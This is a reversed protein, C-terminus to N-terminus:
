SARRRRKAFGLVGALGTGLLAYTSPEPVVSNTDPRAIFLNVNDSNLNATLLGDNQAYSEDGGKAYFDGWVPTRDSLFSYRVGADGMGAPSDFKVGFFTSGIMPNSSFGSTTPGYDGFQAAVATGNVTPAIVCTLSQRCSESLGLILHSIAPTRQGSFGSLMYDYRLLGNDTTTVSWDITFSSRYLGGVDLFSGTRSGVLTAEDGRAQASALAPAAFVFALAATRLATAISM